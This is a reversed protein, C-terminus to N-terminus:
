GQPPTLQRKPRERVSCSMVDEHDLSEPEWDIDKNDQDRAQEMALDLAGDESDAEVLICAIFTGTTTVTVEYRM